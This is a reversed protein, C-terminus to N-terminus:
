VVSLVVCLIVASSIVGRFMVARSIASRVM